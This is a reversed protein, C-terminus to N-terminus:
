YGGGKTLTPQQYDYGYQGGYVYGYDPQQM